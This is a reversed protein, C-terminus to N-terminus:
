GSTEVLWDFLGVKVTADALRDGTWIHHNRIGDSLFEGTPSHCVFFFRDCGSQEFRGLYDALTRRNAKSKVQVFATEGTTPQEMIIDVDRLRAGVRSVRQWGSRAFILDVMTEFDAWHLGAIMDTAVAIMERRSERARVVLPEEVGNIRRLLYDPVQVRCLTQRYSATQTLRSSLQDVVLTRGHIDTNRWGDVTKRMRAGQGIEDAGLWVVDPKAFAWWLHRGSFTIWLTDAGLTYFDQIERTLDRAKGPTRGDQAYIGHVADWDGRACVEHPILSHGFHIEAREFSPQAWKDGAGLKIYRIEKPDIPEM